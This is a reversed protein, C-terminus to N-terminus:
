SGPVVRSHDPVGPFSRWRQHQFSMRPFEETSVPALVVVADDCSPRNIVGDLHAQRRTIKNEFNFLINKPYKLRFGISKRIICIALKRPSRVLMEAVFAESIYVRASRRLTPAMFRHGVSVVKIVM